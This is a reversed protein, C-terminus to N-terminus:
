TLGSLPPTSAGAALALAACSLVIILVGTARTSLALTLSPLRRHGRRAAAPRGRDFTFLSSVM